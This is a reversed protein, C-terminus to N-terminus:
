RQLRHRAFAALSRAVQAAVRLSTVPSPPELEGSLYQRLAEGRRPKGSSTRPLTGPALVVVTHPAISTHAVIAAAIHSELDPPAEETREVLVLLAEDEEDPPVFGLAVACGARVGAVGALCEEFSQPSHNAGRIIVVDKARGTIFLEGGDM